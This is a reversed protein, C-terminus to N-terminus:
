RRDPWLTHAQPYTNSITGFKRCTSVFKAWQPTSVKVKDPMWPNGNLWWMVKMNVTNHGPYIGGRVEMIVDIFGPHQYFTSM